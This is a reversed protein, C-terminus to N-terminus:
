VVGDEPESGTGHAKGSALSREQSKACRRVRGGAEMTVTWCRQM